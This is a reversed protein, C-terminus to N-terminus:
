RSAYQKADTMIQWKDALQEYVLTYYVRDDGLVKFWRSDPTQWQRIIRNVEVLRGAHYFRLPYEEARSGCYCEVKVPKKQVHM